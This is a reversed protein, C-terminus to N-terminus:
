ELGELTVERPEDGPVPDALTTVSYPQHVFAVPNPNGDNYFVADTWTHSSGASSFGGSTQNHGSKLEFRDAEIVLDQDYKHVAFKM